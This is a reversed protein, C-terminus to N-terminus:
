NSLDYVRALRLQLARMRVTVISRSLYYTGFFEVAINTM